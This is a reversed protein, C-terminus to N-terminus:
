KVGPKAQAAVPQIVNVKDIHGTKLLMGLIICIAAFVIGFFVVVPWTVKTALKGTGFQANITGQQGNASDEKNGKAVSDLLGPLGIMQREKDFVDRGPDEKLKELLTQMLVSHGKDPEQDGTRPMPTKEMQEKYGLYSTALVEKYAYAESLRTAVNYNRRCFEEIFILGVIIVSRGAVSIVFDQSPMLGFLSAIGFAILTVSSLIAGVIWWGKSKEIKDKREKFAFALGASTAGPLLSEIKDKLQAYTNTIEGIFKELGDRQKAMLTTHAADQTAYQEDFSKRCSEALERLNQDNTTCLLDLSNTKESILSDLESRKEDHLSQLVTRANEITNSFTQSYSDIETKLSITQNHINQIEAVNSSAQAKQNAIAQCQQEVVQSKAAIENAIVKSSNCIDSLAKQDQQSQGLLGAISQRDDSGQQRDTSLLAADSLSKPLASQLQSVSEAMGDVKSVVDNVKELGALAKKAADNATKEDASVKSEALAKVNTIVSTLDKIAGELEVIRRWVEGRKVEWTENDSM